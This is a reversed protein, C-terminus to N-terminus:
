EGKHLDEYFWKLFTDIQDAEAEIRSAEDILAQADWYREQKFDELQKYTASEIEPYRDLLDCLDEKQWWRIMDSSNILEKATMVM